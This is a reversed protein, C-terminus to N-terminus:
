DAMEVRCLTAAQTQSYASCLSAKSDPPISNKDRKSDRKRLVGTVTSESRARGGGKRRGIRRRSRNIAM